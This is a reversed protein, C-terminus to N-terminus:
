KADLEAAHKRAWSLWDAACTPLHGNVNEDVYAVKGNKGILFTVRSAYGRANLVGFQAAVKKEPDALLTYSIKEKSCFAKHSKSDQVSIGIPVIRSSLFKKHLRSLLHAELTCGPTFDAPYFALLVVKGKYDALRQPKGNQDALIFDPAKQGVQLPLGAARSSFMLLFPLVLLTILLKTVRM